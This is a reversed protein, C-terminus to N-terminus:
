GTPRGGRRRTSRPSPARRSGRRGRATVRRGDPSWVPFRDDAGVPTALRRTEGGEADVVFLDWDGDYRSAYVVSATSRPAPPALGPLLAIASWALRRVLHYM